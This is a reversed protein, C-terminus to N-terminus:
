RLAIIEKRRSIGDEVTDKEIEDYLKDAEALVLEFEKVLEESVSRKGIEVLEKVFGESGPEDIGEGIEKLYRRGAELCSKLRSLRSKVWVLPSV